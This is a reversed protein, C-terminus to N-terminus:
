GRGIRRGNETRDLWVVGNNNDLEYLPASQDHPMETPPTVATLEGPAWTTVPASKPPQSSSMTAGLTEHVVSAKSAKRRRYIFWVLVGLLVAAIAAGVGLGAAQGSSLGSKNGSAAPSTTSTPMSTSTEDSPPTTTMTTTTSTPEAYMVALAYLHLKTNINRMQVALTNVAFDTQTVTITGPTGFQSVCRFDEAHVGPTWTPPQCSYDYATPCCTVAGSDADQCASTYDAPCATGAYTVSADWTSPLCDSTQTPGRLVTRADLAKSNYEWIWFDDARYCGPRTPTWKAPLSPTTM